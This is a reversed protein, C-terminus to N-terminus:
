VNSDVFEALEAPRLAGNASAALEGNRFVRLAPISQIGFRAALEPQQDVDVFAIRARGQLSEALAEVSPKLVQCPGCWDAYFDVLVPVDSQLVDTDFSATSPHLFTDTKATM